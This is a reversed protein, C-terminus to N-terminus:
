DDTPARNVYEVLPRERSSTKHYESKWFRLASVKLDSGLLSLLVERIVRRDAIGYVDCTLAQASICIIRDHSCDSQSACLKSQMLIPIFKDQIWALENPELNGKLGKAWGPCSCLAAIIAM